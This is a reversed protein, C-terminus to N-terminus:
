VLKRGGITLDHGLRFAALGVLAVDLVEEPDSRAVMELAM